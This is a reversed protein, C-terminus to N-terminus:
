TNNNSSSHIEIFNLFFFQEWTRKRLVLLCISYMVNIISIYIYIYIHDSAKYFVFPRM